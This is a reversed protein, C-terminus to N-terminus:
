ASVKELRKTKLFYQIIEKVSPNALGPLHGEIDSIARPQGDSLHEMLQLENCPPGQWKNKVLQYGTTGAASIKIKDTPQIGKIAM